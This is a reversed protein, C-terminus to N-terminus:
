VRQGRRTIKWVKERRERGKGKRAVKRDIFKKIDFIGESIM